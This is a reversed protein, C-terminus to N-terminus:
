AGICVRLFDVIGSCDSGGNIRKLTCSHTGVACTDVSLAAGMKAPGADAHIHPGDIRVCRSSREWHLKM